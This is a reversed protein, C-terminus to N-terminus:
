AVVNESIDLELVAAANHMGAANAIRDAHSSTSEWGEM